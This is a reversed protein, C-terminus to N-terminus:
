KPSISKGRNSRNKRQKEVRGALSDALTSKSRQKRAAARWAARIGCDSCYVQRGKPTFWRPCDACRKINGAGGVQSMLQLVLAAALPPSAFSDFDIAWSRTKKDWQLRPRLDSLFILRDVLNIFNARASEQDRLFVAREQQSLIAYDGASSIYEAQEWDSDSGSRGAKLELGIRMLARLLLAFRQYSEPGDDPGCKGNHSHRLAPLGHACLGILTHRKAFHIAAKTTDARDAIRCFQILLDSRPRVTAARDFGKIFRDGVVYALERGGFPAFPVSSNRKKTM